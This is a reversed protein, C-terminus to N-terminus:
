VYFERAALDEGRGSRVRLELAANLPVYIHKHFMHFCHLAARSRREIELIVIACDHVCSGLYAFRDEQEYSRTAAKIKLKVSEVGTPLLHMTENEERIPDPLVGEFVECVVAVM